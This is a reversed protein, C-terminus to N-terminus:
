LTCVHPSNSEFSHRATTTHCPTPALRSSGGKVGYTYTELEVEEVGAEPSYVRERCQKLILNITQDFGSLTGLITRGDCTVICVTCNVMVDLASAM